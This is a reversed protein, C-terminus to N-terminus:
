SIYSLSSGYIVLVVGFVQLKLGGIAVSELNNKIEDISSSLSAQKEILKGELDKVRKEHLEKQMRLDKKLREVYEFLLNVREDLSVPIEREIDEIVIATDFNVSDSLSISEVETKAFPHSILWKRGLTMLKGKEFLGLNSDISYLVLLGGIIQLVLALAKNIQSGNPCPVSYGAVDGLCPGYYMLLHLLIIPLVGLVPWGRALWKIIKRLM